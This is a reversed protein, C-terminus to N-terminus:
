GKKGKEAQEAAAQLMGNIREIAREAPELLEPRAWGAKEAEIIAELAESNLGTAAEMLRDTEEASVPPAAQMVLFFGEERDGFARHSQLWPHLDAVDVEIGHKTQVVGEMPLRLLGGTFQLAIGQTEGVKVNGPGLTPYRPTKILQLDSRRAAYTVERAPQSVLEDLAPPSATTMRPDDRARRISPAPPPPPSIGGARAPVKRGGGSM